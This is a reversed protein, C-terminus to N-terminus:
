FLKVGKKKKKKKGTEVVYNETFGRPKWAPIKM